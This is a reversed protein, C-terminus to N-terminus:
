TSRTAPNKLRAKLYGRLSRAGGCLAVYLGMSSSGLLRAVAPHSLYWADIRELAYRDSTQSARGMRATCAAAYISQVQRRVRADHRGYPYAFLRVPQGLRDELVARAGQVEDVLAPGDLQTLDAHTRSHAGVEWGMSALDGLEAWSLLRSPPVFAPQGPWDNHGGIYDAVPFVTARWGLRALLPLAYESTSAYGDDFTLAAVRGDSLTGHDLRALAESLPLAIYGAARLRSLHREFIDVPVSVPSGTEDLSHYTLIPLKM